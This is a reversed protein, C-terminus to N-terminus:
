AKVLSWGLKKIAITSSSAVQMIRARYKGSSSDHNGNGLFTFSNTELIYYLFRYGSPPTFPEPIEISGYYWSGSASFEPVGFKEIVGSAPYRKGSIVLENEGPIIADLKEARLRDTEPYDRITDTGAAYRLSHKQTYRPM